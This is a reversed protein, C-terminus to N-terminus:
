SGKGTQQEGLDPMNLKWPQGQLEAQFVSYGATPRLRLVLWLTRPGTISVPTTLAPDPPPAEEVLM